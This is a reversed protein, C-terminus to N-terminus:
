RGRQEFKKLLVNRIVKAHCNHDRRSPSIEDMCYCELYIPSRLATQYLKNLTPCIRQDRDAIAKNLDKEFCAVAEDVTDVKITDPIDKLHTYKNGLPSGRGVYFKNQLNRKYHKNVIIINM